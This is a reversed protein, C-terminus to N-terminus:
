RCAAPLRCRPLGGTSSLAPSTASTSISFIPTSFFGHTASLQLVTAFGSDDTVSCQTVGDCVSRTRSATSDSRSWTKSTPARTSSSRERAKITPFEAKVKLRAAHYKGAATNFYVEGTWLMPVLPVRESIAKPPAKLTTEVTAKLLGDKVAAATFKQGFEYSEGTGLPPDLKLTFTRDWTTPQNGAPAADPLIMRFPLEANLRSASGAKTEKVEVIRGQSDVRVTVVPVNLYGAMAKADEANSSDLVVTSGDPRGMENRMATITMELTAIGKDDVAKVAWRKVLTLKTAPMVSVQSGPRQTLHRRASSPRSLSRIPTHREQRGPSGRHTRPRRNPRLSFPSPSCRSQCLPVEAVSHLASIGTKPPCPFALERRTTRLFKALPSCLLPGIVNLDHDAGEIGLFEKPTNAAAYLAEGQAFPVVSDATGHAIFVPRKCKGIKALNDFRTRMLTNVPLWPYHFKATAPLTTFTFVLVLARHDHRTALEVATGGGLSEGLM